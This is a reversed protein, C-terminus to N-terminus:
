TYVPTLWVERCSLTHAHNEYLLLSSLPSDVGGTSEMYTIKYM